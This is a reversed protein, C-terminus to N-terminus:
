NESASEEIPEDAPELAQTAAEQAKLREKQLEQFEEIRKEVVKADDYRELRNLHSYLSLQAFIDTPALESSKLYANVAEDVEDVQEYLEGLSMHLAFDSPFKETALKYQAVADELQGLEAYVDGLAAYLYGDNPQEEIALKYYHAADEYNKLTIQNFANMQHDLYQVEASARLDEFWAVLDGQGKEERVLKEILPRIKEFEEGEAEQRDTVTILHYGYMSRVPESIEGVELAFVAEEFEPVTRGRQIYGLEGGQEGSTDESHIKALEAFNETTLEAYVELAKQEAEAWADDNDEAPTILIHSARVQEYVDKIEQDSVPIDGMIEAKLKDFKIEEALRGKLIDETLNALQMQLKFDEVSPFQDVINRYEEDIEAKSATIKRSEIEQTILVSGILSELAQFRVAEYDRGQILGQEQEIQQLRSIFTQYLDYYSIAQGNVVSVPAAAQVPQTNQKGGFLSAGGAWLLGGAMAVVVVIIIIKMQERMKHFFM